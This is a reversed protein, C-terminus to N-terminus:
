FGVPLYAALASLVVAPLMNAVSIKKGWVLNVGVCFILVSGVLSLYELALDTLVPAILRSLLTVSGQLVLVPLASFVAGKGMSSTLAAVIVLDLVSKVALTSWDGQIGDQISGVIAMAGICVTFTATVFAEVFNGDRSNGTKRKLFEGLREFGEEIGILEGIATGLVLSLVVLMSKGASLSGDEVKLMGEMAGSLAIFLTSVGCAKQLAEQQKKGFLKGFFHGVLGGVGIAATNLLTGLGFM